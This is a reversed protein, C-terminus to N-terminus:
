RRLRQRTTPATPPKSFRLIREEALITFKRYEAYPSHMNRYFTDLTTWTTSDTGMLTPNVIDAAEYFFWETHTAGRKGSPEVEGLHRVSRKKDQKHREHAKGWLSNLDELRLIRPVLPM